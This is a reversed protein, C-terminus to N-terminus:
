KVDEVVDGDGERGKFRVREEWHSGHAISCTPRREVM